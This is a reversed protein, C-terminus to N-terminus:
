GGKTLHGGQGEKFLTTLTVCAVTDLAFPLPRGGRGQTRAHMPTTGGWLSEFFTTFVDVAAQQGHSQNVMDRIFGRQVMAHPLGAGPVAQLRGAGRGGKGTWDVGFSCLVRTAAFDMLAATWEVCCLSLCSHVGQLLGAHIGLIIGAMVIMRSADCTGGPGAAM